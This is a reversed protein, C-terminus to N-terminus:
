KVFATWDDDPGRWFLRLKWEGYFDDAPRVTRVLISAIGSVDALTTESPPGERGGPASLVLAGNIFVQASTSAELRLSHSNGEPLEVTGVWEMTSPRAAFAPPPHEDVEFLWDFRTSVHLQTYDPSASIPTATSAPIVRTFYRGLLGHTQPHAHLFNRAIPAWRQTDPRQWDLTLRETPQRLTGIIEVTHWGAALDVPEEGKMEHGDIRVAAGSSRFAYRGPPSIWVQARGSAAVPFDTQDPAALADTAATPTWTRTPSRYTARLGRTREVEDARLTFTHLFATDYIDHRVEYHAEPYYHRVLPLLAREARPIILAATGRHSPPLPVIAPAAPLNVMVRNPAAPIMCGPGAVKPAVM